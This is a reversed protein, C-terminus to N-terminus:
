PTASTGSRRRCGRGRRRTRACCPQACPVRPPPCPGPSSAGHPPPRRPRRPPRRRLRQSRRSIPARRAWGREGERWVESGPSCGPSVDCRTLPSTPPLSSSPLPFHPLPPPPCRGRVGELAHDLVGSGGKPKPLTHTHTSCPGRLPPGPTSTARTSAGRGEPLPLSPSSSLGLLAHLAGCSWVGWGGGLGDRIKGGGLRRILGAPASTATSLSLLPSAIPPTPSATMSAGPATGM